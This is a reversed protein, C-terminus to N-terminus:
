GRSAVVPLVFVELDQRHAQHVPWVQGGIEEGCMLLFRGWARDSVTWPMGGDRSILMAVSGAGGPGDLIGRCLLVLDLPDIDYPGDPLDDITMVPGTPRGAVDLFMLWLARFRFPEHALYDDWRATLGEASSIPSQDSPPRRMSM